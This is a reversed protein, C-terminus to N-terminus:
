SVLNQEVALAVAEVRNTADLKGLVSSVHFKVTSLSITLESAIETNNLGEVMLRLIEIERRTLGYDQSPKAAQRPQLLGPTVESSFVSKGSYAARITHALDDISSNKLVYGIAGADIMARVSEQDQFSSLALIKIDPYKGHIIKTAEIGNMVPMIVDMLVIDPQHEDCLQVAEKGNSGQAVLELDDFVEIIAAIGRHVTSHDDVLIIGIKEPENM